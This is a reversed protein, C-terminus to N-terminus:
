SDKTHLQSAQQAYTLVLELATEMPIGLRAAASKVHNVLPLKENKRQVTESKPPKPFAVLRNVAESKASTRIHSYYKMAKETGHGAIARVTEDPAGSELLKTIAQHRFTRPTVWRLDAAKAIARFSARVFCSSSPRAPDHKGKKIRFPILYHEKEFSSRDFALTVLERVAELAVRNLPVSRVRNSNKVTDPVLIVPPEQLLRLDGLRLTRLECGQLTTNGTLLAANLATKWDTKKRAFRLFRDEEEASMVKPPAWNKEPLREYYRSIPQWLNALELIQVLAGLEHNILSAGLGAAARQKQYDRFHGEHFSSLTKQPDFYRELTRFHYQYNEYSRETLKDKRRELYAAAADTLTMEPLFPALPRFPVVVIEQQHTNTTGAEKM